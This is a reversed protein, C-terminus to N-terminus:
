SYQSHSVGTGAYAWLIFYTVRNTSTGTNLARPIYIAVVVFFVVFFM